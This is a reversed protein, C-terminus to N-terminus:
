RSCVSVRVNRVKLKKKEKNRKRNKNSLQYIEAM